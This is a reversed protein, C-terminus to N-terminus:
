WADEVTSVYEDPIPISHSNEETGLSSINTNNCSKHKEELHDRLKQEEPKTLYSIGPYFVCLLCFWPKIILGIGKM